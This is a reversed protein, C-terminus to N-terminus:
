IHCLGERFTRKLKKNYTKPLNKKFIIRRPVKYDLLTKNCYTIIDKESLDVGKKLVVLAIPVEGQIIHSTGIVISEKIGPHKNLQQEIEEPTINMGGCIILNRERGTLFLFGEDDLYGMDGTLLYGHKLVKNTAESNKYYGLMINKGKIAIEGVQYPSLPVLNKNLIYIKVGNIAKGVSNKKVTIYQPLLTTIRPSAETQGYTQVFGVSPFKQKLLFLQDYSIPSGGFCLYQLSTINYNSSHNYNLLYSLMTPVCTTITIKEQEILSLFKRPSFVGKLLVITGKLMTHAIFQSTNCYGFFMPLTILVIDNSNIGLSAIHAQANKLINEHSLVIYKPNSMTGSTQLILAPTEKKIKRGLFCIKNKIDFTKKNYFMYEGELNSYFYIFKKQYNYMGMGKLLTPSHIKLLSVINKTIIFRVECFNLVNVLEEMPLKPNLPLIIAGLFSIAFYTIIYEPSRDFQIAICDGQKIGQKHLFTAVFLANDHLESYTIYGYDFIVAKRTGTKKNATVLIDRLTQEEM